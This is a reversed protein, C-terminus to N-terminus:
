VDATQAAGTRQAFLTVLRKTIAGPRGDAVQKDDVTVVPMIEVTTGALFLEDARALETAFIPEESTPIGAEACLELTVARTVSPLIYNTRPATRVVGDFVGFLSCASCELAVGDRVMVAEVAGVERARQMGLCNPLLNLSKIDCRTWRIDPVTIVKVGNPDGRPAFPLATAYTTPPTKPDPFWHKRPAAGRTVQMYIVADATALGNHELLRHAIDRFDDARVGQIQLERLGRDMRALHADAAFLRGLFGRDDVSITAEDKPVYRGNFYVTM